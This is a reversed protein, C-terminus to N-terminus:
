LRGYLEAIRRMRRILRKDFASSEMRWRWNEGVTSPTNIRAEAGLGLWDAMPVIVTDAATMFVNGIVAENWESSPEGDLRMYEKMLSLDAKSLEAYWAALTQNDHTGTYGVSGKTWNHPRYDSDERHDFGFELIKMSPYGTAKVLERVSDTLFGLDEAIMDREGLKAKVADFFRLGPGKVWVGDRATEARFPVCYFEDFGRFHDIRLRDCLRFSHEIRRIWWEYGTREHYDWDYVPNGWLQGDESFADPPVGSIWVPRGGEDMQFLEPKSWVDSSDYAVYIPLDGIFGIGLGNVYKKLKDWQKFFHFQIWKHFRIRDGLKERLSTLVREDRVRLEEEWEYWPAGDHAEKLAMFLAYDDLWFSQEECFPAFGTHNKELGCFNEVQYVKYLLPLREKYLRAYDIYGGDESSAARRLLKKPLVEEPFAEPDIFYPDGAFTSFSQYPSDGYSTPGLPLIQWYSQGAEHLKDAFRYAEKGFNGIGYKGPLSFIPMLVGAKRM